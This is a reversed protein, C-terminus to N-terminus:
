SPHLTKRLIKTNRLIEPKIRMVDAEFGLSGNRLGTSFIDLFSAVGHYGTRGVGLVWNGGVGTGVGGMIGGLFEYNDGFIEAVSVAGAAFGLEM